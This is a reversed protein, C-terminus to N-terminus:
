LGKGRCNDWKTKILFTEGKLVLKNKNAYTLVFTHGNEAKQVFYCKQTDHFINSPEISIYIGNNDPIVSLTYIYDDSCGGIFLTEPPTIEIEKTTYVEHCKKIDHQNMYKLTTKEKNVIRLINKTSAFSSVTSLALIGATIVILLKKM